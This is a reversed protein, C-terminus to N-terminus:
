KLGLTKRSRQIVSIITINIYYTRKSSRDEILIDKNLNSLIYV